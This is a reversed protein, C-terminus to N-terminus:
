VHKANEKHIQHAVLTLGSSDPILYEYHGARYRRLGKATEIFREDNLVRQQEAVYDRRGGRSCGVHVSAAGLFRYNEYGALYARLSWEVNDFLYDKQNDLILDAVKQTFLYGGGTYVIPQKIFRNKLDLNQIQNETKRWNCSIIGTSKEILKDFASEYQSKETLLMDDDLGCYVDAQWIGLGKARARFVGIRDPLSLVGDCLAEVEEANSYGQLVCHIRWDPKHKKISHLLAILQAQRDATSPVLFAKIM